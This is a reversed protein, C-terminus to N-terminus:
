YCITLCEQLVGEYMRLMIRDNDSRPGDWISAMQQSWTAIAEQIDAQYSKLEPDDASIGLSGLNIGGATAMDIFLQLTPYKKGIEEVRQELTQHIELVKICQQGCALASGGSLLLLLTALIFHKM